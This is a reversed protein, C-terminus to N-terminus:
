IKQYMEQHNKSYFPPIGFLLEYVLIGLSWWDAARNSGNGFIIEPALYEPTGCFTKAMESGKLKKALGFDTLKAYGKEDLLVNEPKLDRYVYDKNHLHSLATVVCAVIFRTQEESFQKIKKLHQFLEGGNMFEMVFFIKHENQFTEKLSVLFPHSLKSLINKESIIHEIQNKEIIHRKKIIKMAYQKKKHDKKECLLVKGHAGKGLMKILVFDGIKSSKEFNKKYIRQKEIQDKTTNNKCTEQFEFANMMKLYKCNPRIQLGHQIDEHSTVYIDLAFDDVMYIKMKFNTTKSSRLDLALFRSSIQLYIIFQIIEKKKDLCLIREDIDDKFHLVCEDSFCSNTVSQIENIKIERLINENRLIYIKIKTIVLICEQTKGISCFLVIKTSLLIREDDFKNSKGIDIFPFNTLM